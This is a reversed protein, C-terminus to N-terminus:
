TSCFQRNLALISSIHQTHLESTTHWGPETYINPGRPDQFVRAIPYLNDWQARFLCGKFGDGPRTTESFVDAV